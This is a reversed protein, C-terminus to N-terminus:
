STCGNGPEPGKTQKEKSWKKKAFNLIGQDHSFICKVPRKGGMQDKRGFPPLVQDKRRKFFAKKFIQRANNLVLALFHDGDIPHGIMKVNENAKLRRQCYGIVLKMLSDLNRGPFNKQCSPNPHKV